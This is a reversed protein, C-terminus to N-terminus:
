RDRGKAEKSSRHIGDVRHCTTRQRWLHYAKKMRWRPSRPSRRWSLSSLWLPNARTARTAVATRIRMVTPRQERWARGSEGEEEEVM